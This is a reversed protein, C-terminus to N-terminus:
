KTHKITIPSGNKTSARYVRIQTANFFDKVRQTNASDLGSICLKIANYDVGNGGGGDCCARARGSAKLPAGLCPLYRLLEPAARMADIAANDLTMLAM